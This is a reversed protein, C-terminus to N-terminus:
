SRSSNIINRSAASLAKTLIRKQASALHVSTAGHKGWAGACPAFMGPAEKMFARQQEPTLKVMGWGDDPYGLSAFIKGNVRFDPHNMHAAEVAGTVKLAAARFEDNTM